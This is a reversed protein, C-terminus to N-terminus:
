SFSLSRLGLSPIRESPSERLLNRLNKSIQFHIELQHEIMRVLPIHAPLRAKEPHSSAFRNM